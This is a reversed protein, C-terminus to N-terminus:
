LNRLSLLTNHRLDARNVLSLIKGATAEASLLEGNQHLALFRDLSPFKEKSATRIEAQMATDIVGPSISYVGIPHTKHIQEQACVTTFRDLASKSACYAAWGEIDKSAAGSSINFILKETDTNQFQKIFVESFIIPALANVTFTAIYHEAQQEGVFAVDGLMGANNILILRNFLGAQLKFFDTAKKELGSSDSLDIKYFHFRPDGISPDRRSCGHISLEQEQSLLEKVLALGIGSSVGTIFYHDM